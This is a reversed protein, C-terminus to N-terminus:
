QDFPYCGSDKLDGLGSKALAVYGLCAVTHFQKIKHTGCIRDAEKLVWQRNTVKGYSSEWVDMTDPLWDTVLCDLEPPYSREPLETMMEPMQESVGIVWDEVLKVWEWVPQNDYSNVNIYDSRVVHDPIGTVKSIAPYSSGTVQRLMWHTLRRTLCASDIGRAGTVESVKSTIENM